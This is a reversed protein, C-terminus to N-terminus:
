WYCGKEIAEFGEPKITPRMWHENVYQAVYERNEWRKGIIGFLLQTAGGTQIAIKNLNKIYLCLPSGYAGAGVLAIDFDQKLIEIKLFDLAEFWSEFRNDSNTGNTLPAEVTILKFDPLLDTNEPFLLKRKKYQEEIQKAFPSVVLVKKGKLLPSWKGLLPDLSWNQVPKADPTLTKFFYNEMHVGSIGLYDTDKLNNVMYEAYYGIMEQTAPFVGANNKISYRVSKKYRFALKLNKKKKKKIASLEVAGFRIAAFPDGKELADKILNNSKDMTIQKINGIKDTSPIIRFFKYAFVAGSSKWFEKIYNFISRKM